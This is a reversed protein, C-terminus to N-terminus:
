LVTTAAPHRVGDATVLGALREGDLIPEVVDTGTMVEAGAAECARRLAGVLARPDVSAENAAHVGGYLSPHLGPELDRCATPLLWDAELGLSRMLEYRRRLEGAEDRDLAVHLAGPSNFGPDLGSAEALEAAFEPWAAHSALGAEVLSEEGWTAEGIPALM